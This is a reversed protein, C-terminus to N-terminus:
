DGKNYYNNITNKNPPQLSYRIYACGDHKRISGDPNNLPYVYAPCEEKYCDAFDNYPCKM